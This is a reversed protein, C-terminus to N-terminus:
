NSPSRASDMTTNEIVDWAPFPRYEGPKRIAQGTEDDRDTTVWPMDAADEATTREDIATILEIYNGGYVPSYLSQVNCLCSTRVTIKDKLGLTSPHWAWARM